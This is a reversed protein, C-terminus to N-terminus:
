FKLMKFSYIILHSIQFIKDLIEFVCDLFKFIIVVKTNKIKYDNM